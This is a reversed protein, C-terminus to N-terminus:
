ILPKRPKEGRVLYVIWYGIFFLVVVLAFGAFDIGVDRWAPGRGPTLLQIFESLAALTFGGVLAGLTGLARRTFSQDILTIAIMLPIATLAFLSFHGLFKRIFAAFEAFSMGTGAEGGVADYIPDSVADSQSGSSAADMGSEILIVLACLFFLVLFIWIAIPHNRAEARSKRNTM